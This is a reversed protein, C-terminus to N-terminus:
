MSDDTMQSSDVNNDNTIKLDSNEAYLKPNELHRDSM